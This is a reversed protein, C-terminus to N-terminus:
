EGSRSEETVVAGVGVETVPAVHIEHRRTRVHITRVFPHELWLNNLSPNSALGILM